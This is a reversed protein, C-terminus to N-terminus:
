LRIRMNKELKQKGMKEEYKKIIQWKERDKGLVKKENEMKKGDKGRVKKKNGM